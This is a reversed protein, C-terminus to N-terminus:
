NRRSYLYIGVKLSRKLQKNNEPFNINNNNFVKLLKLKNKVLPYYIQSDWIHILLYCKELKDHILKRITRAVLNQPPYAHLIDLESWSYHFADKNELLSFYDNVIANQKTAFLDFMIIKTRLYEIITRKITAEGATNLRRSELDALTNHHGVIHSLTLSLRRNILLTNHSKLLINMIKNSSSGKLLAGLSAMNDTKVQIKCDHLDALMVYHKITAISEYLEKINIHQSVLSITNNSDDLIEPFSRSIPLLQINTAHGGWGAQSADSITTCIPDDYLIKRSPNSDLWKASDPSVKVSVYASTLDLKTYYDKVERLKPLYKISEMKFKCKDMCLWKNLPKANVVLRLKSTTATPKKTFKEYFLHM